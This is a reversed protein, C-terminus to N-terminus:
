TLEYEQKPEFYLMEGGFIEAVKKMDQILKERKSLDSEKQILDYVPVTQLKNDNLAICKLVSFSTKTINAGKNCKELYIHWAISYESKKNMPPAYVGNIGDFNGLSYTILKGKKIKSFDGGHVVHEHSGCVIDVGNETLWKAMKKTYNTPESNYQGGIHMYMVVIDAGADRTRRIDAKLAKKKTWDFERREYIPCAYRNPFAIKLGKNYVKCILNTNHFFCYRSLPNSLEQNQFLNVDFQTAKTLYEQNSFANTGYTYSLLGIKM